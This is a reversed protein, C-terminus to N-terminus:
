QTGYIHHVLLTGVQALSEPSCKDPTDELTHWYNETVNPYDFDIIDVAPIGAIEYLPVHDDFVGHRAEFKFAPLGLQRALSWLLRVLQSAQMMSFREVYIELEADGVMDLNIAYEPKNFPLHAAFFQSGKAYSWSDGSVGMDEADWFILTVGIPPPLESFIRALELLVAVGSGGDNAGLTPTLRNQPNQDHDSIPRTDWHASIIIQKNHSPNFRGIINGFEFMKGKLPHHFSQIFVTDAHSLNKQIYEKTKFYGKSGPNRPGFNCQAILHEFALDGNFSPIGGRCGSLPVFLVATLIFRLNRM